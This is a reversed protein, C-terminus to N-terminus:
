RNTYYFVVYIVNIMTKSQLIIYLISSDVSNQSRFYIEKEFIWERIRVVVMATNREDTEEQMQCQIMLLLRKLFKKNMIAFLIPDIVLSLMASLHGITSVFFKQQQLFNLAIRYDRLLNILELPAQASTISIIMTVLLYNAERPNKRSRVASQRVNERRQVGPASTSNFRQAVM